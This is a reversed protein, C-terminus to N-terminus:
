AQISIYLHTCIHIHIYMHIHPCAYKQSSCFPSSLLVGPHLSVTRLSRTKFGKRLARGDDAGGCGLKCGWGGRQLQHVLMVSVRVSLLALNPLVSGRQGRLLASDGVRCGHRVSQLANRREMAHSIRGKDQSCAIYLLFVFFSAGAAVTERTNRTNRAGGGPALLDARAPQPLGAQANSM